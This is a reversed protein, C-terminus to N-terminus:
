KNIDLKIFAATLFNVESIFNPNIFTRVTRVDCAENVILQLFIEYIGRIHPWTPDTEVEDADVGTDSMGININSKKISPLPRFINKTVMEMCLDIHPIFLTTVMRQDNLMEILENTATLREQKLKADKNEDTYDFTTKALNVKKLFSAKIDTTKEAGPGKM